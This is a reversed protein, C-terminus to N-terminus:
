NANLVPQFINKSMPLYNPQVDLIGPNNKANQLAPAPPKTTTNFTLDRNLTIRAAKPDLVTGHTLNITLMGYDFM